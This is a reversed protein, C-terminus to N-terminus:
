STGHAMRWWTERWVKRCSNYNWPNKSVSDPFFRYNKSLLLYLILRSNGVPKIQNQNPKNQNADHFLIDLM